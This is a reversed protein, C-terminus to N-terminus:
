GSSMSVNSNMLPPQVPNAAPHAFSEEGKKKKEVKAPDIIGAELLNEYENTGANYGFGFEKDALCKDVAVEGNIGANEAIQM